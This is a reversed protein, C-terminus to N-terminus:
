PEVSGGERSRTWRHIGIRDMPTDCLSTEHVGAQQVGERGKRTGAAERGGGGLQVQGLGRDGDVDTGQFPLQAGPEEIAQGRPCQEGLGAPAQQLPGLVDEVGHRPQLGVAVPGEPPPHGDASGLRQAGAPQRAHDGRQAGAVGLQVDAQVRGAGRSADLSQPGSAEVQGQQQLLFGGEGIHRGLRDGPLAEHEDASGAVRQGLTGM